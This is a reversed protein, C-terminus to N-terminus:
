KIYPLLEKFAPTGAKQLWEYVIMETTAVVGGIERIRELGTRYNLEARSNVADAAVWMRYGNMLGALVTQYVCIHTEVGCIILTNIAKPLQKIADNIAGNAFCSFEVKDLAAREGLEARVEPLLPGIRPLYQTTAVVPVQMINAAKMLLVSNKIVEDRAPIAPMMREQIDIVVLASKESQLRYLNETM